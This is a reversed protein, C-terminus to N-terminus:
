KVPGFPDVTSWAGVFGQGKMDGQVTDQVYLYLPMRDFTTQSKKDPRIFNGLRTADIFSPAVIKDVSFVPWNQACTGSCNSTNPADKSYQYLTHGTDADILYNVNNKNAFVVTYDPKAVFWLKNFGEGKVDGAATDGAYTYLPWGYYTTQVTGDARTISKFDGMDLGPGISITAINFVPWIALCPGTCSSQGDADKAFAYLARGNNDALYSGLKPDNRLVVQTVSLTAPAAPTPQTAEPQVASVPNTPPVTSPKMSLGWWVLGIAIVAVVVIVATM